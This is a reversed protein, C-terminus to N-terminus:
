EAMRWGFSEWRKITPEWVASDGYHILNVARSERRFEGMRDWDLLSADESQYPFCSDYRLMDFPFQGKGIVRFRYAWRLPGSLKTRHLTEMMPM